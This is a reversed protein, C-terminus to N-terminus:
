LYNQILFWFGSYFTNGDSDLLAITSNTNGLIFSTGSTVLALRVTFHEKTEVLGDSNVTVSVCMEAGHASGTTFTVPAVLPEYDGSGSTATHYM